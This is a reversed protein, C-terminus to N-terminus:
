DRRDGDGWDTSDDPDGQPGGGALADGLGPFFQNCGERWEEKRELADLLQSPPPEHNTAPDYHGHRMLAPILEICYWHLWARVAPHASMFGCTMALSPWPLYRVLRGHKHQLRRILAEQRQPARNFLALLRTLGADTVFVGAGNRLSFRQYLPAGSDVIRRLGAKRSVGMARLTSRVECYFLDNVECVRAGAARLAQIARRGAPDDTYTPNM